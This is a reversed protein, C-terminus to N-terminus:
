DMCDCPDDDCVQCEFCQQCDCSVCEVCHEDDCAGDQWDICDVCSNQGSARLPFNEMISFNFM